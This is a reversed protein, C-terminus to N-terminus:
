PIRRWLCRPFGLLGALSYLTVIMFIQCFRYFRSEPKERPRAFEIIRQNTFRLPSLTASRAPRSFRHPHFGVSPEFGEREAEFSGHNAVEQFDLTQSDHNKNKVGTTGNKALTSKQESRAAANLMLISFAVLVMRTNLTVSM